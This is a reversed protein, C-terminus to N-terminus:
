FIIEKLNCIGRAISVTGSATYNYYDAKWVYIGPVLDFIGENKYVILPDSCSIPNYTDEYYWKIIIAQTGISVNVISELRDDNVALKTWFIIRGLNDPIDPLATYVNIQVTDKASSGKNDTVQLEFQYVGVVLGKLTTKVSDTKTINSLFPGAIMAWKYSIIKGDPDSSTTGDLMISDKPLITIQDPGAKAIPPKNIECDPCLFKKQCSNLFGWSLVFLTFWKMPKM